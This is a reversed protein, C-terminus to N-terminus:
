LSKSADDEGGFVLRDGGSGLSVFDLWFLARFQMLPGNWFEGEVVGGETLDGHKEGQSNLREVLLASVKLEWNGRPKLLFMGDDCAVRSSIHRYVVNEVVEALM